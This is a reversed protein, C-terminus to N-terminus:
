RYRGTLGVVAIISSTSIAIIDENTLSGPERWSDSSALDPANGFTYTEVCSDSECLDIATGVGAYVNFVFLATTLAGLILVSWRPGWRAEDGQVEDITEIDSDPSDAAEPIPESFSRPASDTQRLGLKELAEAGYIREILSVINPDDVEEPSINGDLLDRLVSEDVM